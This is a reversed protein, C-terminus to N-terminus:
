QKLEAGEHIALGIFEHADNRGNYWLLWRNNEEDFCVSPKYCAREDWAAATPQVIPNAEARQWGRIGDPSIAYGIRATNIDSYGIYFMVFSGDALQHVECGGVRDQDWEGEQGHIFIPNLPSRQWHIGDVSEAYCLVNPEYTEGSAYWMRLVSRKEDYIVYPNMVSFGEYNYEPVMVPHAQIREFHVGDDSVAYGIKSYGRAQGTYWMHYKGGFAITCSRNIIDEWGSTPDAELVIEPATWHMGDDSHSLAIAGKPRWSLYMNYKSTGEKIVNVDFCTGIEEDGLVPNGAYKTWATEAPAKETEDTPANKSGNQCAAVLMTAAILPLWATFFHHKM